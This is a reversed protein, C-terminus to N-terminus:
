SPEHARRRFYVITVPDDNGLGPKQRELEAQFAAVHFFGCLPVDEPLMEAITTFAVRTILIPEQRQKLATPKIEDIGPKFGENVAYTPGLTFPHLGVLACAKLRDTYFLSWFDTRITLM